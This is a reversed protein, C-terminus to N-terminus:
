EAARRLGKAIRRTQGLSLGHSRDYYSGKRHLEGMAHMKRIEKVEEHSIVIGKIRGKIIADHVNDTNTGLFLHEPNVCQRNDCKHCVFLGDAINGYHLAYSLRHATHTKKNYTIVGYGNKPNTAGIWNWCSDENKKVYKWFRINIDQAHVHGSIYKRERGRKDYKPRNGGCGCACEIILNDKMKNNWM